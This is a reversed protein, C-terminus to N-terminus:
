EQETSSTWELMTVIAIVITCLLFVVKFFWSPAILVLLMLLSCYLGVELDMLNRWNLSLMPKRM